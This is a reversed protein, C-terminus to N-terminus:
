RGPRSAHSRVLEALAEIFDPEDNLSRTRALALGLRRAAERAEVDIDYLVELHDAVFGAPCVVVHTVGRRALGELAEDLSPGLWPEPTRGASQYAWSFRHAPLALQRAVAQCTRELERPYPDDWSRIREPLSHATFLVHADAFGPSGLCERVRRALAGVLGSHDAWSQVYTLEPAGPGARRRGEEAAEIYAGVSLRSYHPALAVAVGRRIGDAAMAAVADAIWPRFHRMGVYVRYRGPGASAPECAGRGGATPAENLRQELARAQRVTIANLPSVGGIARYRAVLEDLQEPSPRRGGRIHTYYPEIDEIREPSGYAMLLVGAAEM